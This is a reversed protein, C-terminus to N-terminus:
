KVNCKLWNVIYNTTDNISMVEQFVLDANNRVQNAASIYIDRFHDQYKDLYNSISSISASNAQETHRKIIRALCLEMPQDLLIVYDIFLSMADREKGFPEEIFIYRSDSKLLLSELSNVFKPTTILSVNAGSKLWQKMDQPYSGEDTHDDFLLYPCDFENALQKVITTKGAGAVGSVAVVKTNNM